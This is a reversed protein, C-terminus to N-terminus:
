KAELPTWDQEFQPDCREKRCVLFKTIPHIGWLSMCDPEDKLPNDADANVFHVKDYSLGGEVWVKVDKAEINAGPVQVWDQEASIPLSTVCIPIIGLAELMKM